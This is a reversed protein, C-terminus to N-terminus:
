PRRMMVGRRQGARAAQPRHARRRGSSGVCKQGQYTATFAISTCGGTGSDDRERACTPAAAAAYATADQPGSLSTRSSAPSSARQAPQGAGVIRVRSCIATPRSCSPRLSPRAAYCWPEGNEPVYGGRLRGSEDGDLFYGQVLVSNAPQGQGQSKPPKKKDAFETPVPQRDPAATVTPLADFDAKPLLLLDDFEFSAGNQDFPALWLRLRADTLPASGVATFEVM